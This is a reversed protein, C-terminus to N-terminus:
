VEILKQWNFLIPDELFDFCIRSCNSYKESEHGYREEIDELRKPYGVIIGSPNVILDAANLLKLMKSDYKKQYTGHYFIERWYKYGQEKLFLGGKAAHEKSSSFEYGIDHLYGVTFAEEPSFDFYDSHALVIKKMLKAVGLSHKARNGTMEVKQKEAVTKSTDFDSLRLLWNRMVGMAVYHYIEKREDVFYSIANWLIALIEDEDYQKILNENTWDGKCSKKFVDQLKEIGFDMCEWKLESVFRAADPMIMAVPADFGLSNREYWMEPHTEAEKIFDFYQLVKSYDKM